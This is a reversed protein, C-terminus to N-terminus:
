CYWSPGSQARFRPYSHTKVVDGSGRLLNHSYMVPYLDPLSGAKLITGRGGPEKICTCAARNKEASRDRDHDIGGDVRGPAVLLTRALQRFGLATLAPRM